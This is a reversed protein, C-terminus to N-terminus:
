CHTGLGESAELRQRVQGVPLYEQEVPNILLESELRKALKFTIKM